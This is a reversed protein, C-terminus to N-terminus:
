NHAFDNILSFEEVIYLEGYSTHLLMYRVRGRARRGFWPTWVGDFFM